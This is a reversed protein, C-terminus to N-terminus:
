IIFCMGNSRQSSIDKIHTYTHTHPKAMYIHDIVFVVQTILEFFTHSVFCFFSLYRYRYHDYLKWHLSFVMLYVTIIIIIFFGSSSNNSKQKETEVDFFFSKNNNRGM